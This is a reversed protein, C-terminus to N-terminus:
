HIGGITALNTSVKALRLCHTLGIHHPRTVQGPFLLKELSMTSANGLFIWCKHLLGNKNVCCQKEQLRIKGQFIPTYLNISAANCLILCHIHLNKKGTTSRRRIATLNTSAKASSSRLCQALSLTILIRWEVKFTFNEESVCSAQNGFLIWCMKHMPLNNTSFTQM